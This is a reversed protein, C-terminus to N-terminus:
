TGASARFWCPWCCRVLASCCSCRSGSRSCCDLGYRECVRMAVLGIVAAFLYMFFEGTGYGGGNLRGAPSSASYVMVAGFAILCLTATMLIRHELPPAVRRTTRAQAPRPLM